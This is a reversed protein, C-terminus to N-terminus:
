LELEEGPKMDPKLIWFWTDNTRIKKAGLRKLTARLKNLEETLIGKDYLIISDTTLDLMLPPHRKLEGPSLVHEQITPSWKFAEEFRKYEDTKQLNKEINALLSIRNGLSLNEIGSMVVLIDIDSGPFSAEGRAVSGFIALALVQEHFEERAIEAYKKMLPLALDQSKNPRM